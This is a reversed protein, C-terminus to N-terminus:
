FWHLVYSLINVVIIVAAVLLLIRIIGGAIRFLLGFLWIVLVLIVIGWLINHLM